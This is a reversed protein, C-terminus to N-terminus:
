RWELQLFLGWWHDRLNFGPRANVMELLEYHLSFGLRGTYSDRHIVHCQKLVGASRGTYGLTSHEGM